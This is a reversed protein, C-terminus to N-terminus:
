IYSATSKQYWKFRSIEELFVSCFSFQIYRRTGFHIWIIGFNECVKKYKRDSIFSRCHTAKRGSSSNSESWSYISVCKNGDILSLINCCRSNYRRVSGKQHWMPHSQFYILVGLKWIHYYLLRNQFICTIEIQLIACYFSSTM